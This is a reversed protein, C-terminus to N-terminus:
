NRRSPRGNGRRGIRGPLKHNKECASVVPPRRKATPKRRNTAYSSVHDRAHLPMKLSSADYPGNHPAVVGPPIVLMPDCAPLGVLRRQITAGFHHGSKLRKLCSSLLSQHAMSVHRKHNTHDKIIATEKKIPQMAEKKIACARNRNAHVMTAGHM